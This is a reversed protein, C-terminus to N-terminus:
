ALIPVVLSSLVYLFRFFRSQQGSTDDILRITVTIFRHSVNVALCRETHACEACKFTSALLIVLISWRWKANANTQKSTVHLPIVDRSMMVSYTHSTITSRRGDCSWRLTVNPSEHTSEPVSTLWLVLWMYFWIHSIFFWNATVFCNTHFVQVRYSTNRALGYFSSAFLSKSLISIIHTHQSALTHIPYIRPFAIINKSYPLSTQRFRHIEMDYICVAEFCMNHLVYSSIM